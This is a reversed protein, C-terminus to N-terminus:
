VREVARWEKPGGCLPPRMAFRRSPLKDSQKVKNTTLRRAENLAAAAKSRGLIFNIINQFKLSKLHPWWGSQPTCTFVCVLIKTNICMTVHTHKHTHEHKETVIECFNTTSISRPSCIPSRNLPQATPRNPPSGCHQQICHVLLHWVAFQINSSFVFACVYM